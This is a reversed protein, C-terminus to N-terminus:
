EFCTEHEPEPMEGLGLEYMLYPDASIEDILHQTVAERTLKDVRGTLTQCVVWEESGEIVFRQSGNIYVGDECDFAGGDLAPEGDTNNVLFRLGNDSVEDPRITILDILSTM